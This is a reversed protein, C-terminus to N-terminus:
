TDKKPQTKRMNVGHPVLIILNEGQMDVRLTALDDENPKRGYLKKFADHVVSMPVLNVAYKKDKDDPEFPKNKKTDTM